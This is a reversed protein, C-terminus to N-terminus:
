AFSLREQPADDSNRHTQRTGSGPCFMYRGNDPLTESPPGTGAASNPHAATRVKVSAPHPHARLSENQKIMQGASSPSCQSAVMPMLDVMPPAFAAPGGKRLTVTLRCM